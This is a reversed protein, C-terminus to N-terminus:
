LLMGGGSTLKPAKLTGSVAMLRVRNKQQISFQISSLSRSGGFDLLEFKSPTGVIKRRYVEPVDHLNNILHDKAPLNKFVVDYKSM